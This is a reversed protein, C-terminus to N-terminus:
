TQLPIADELINFYMQREYQNQGTLLFYFWFASLFKNKYRALM